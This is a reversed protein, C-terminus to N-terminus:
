NKNNQEIVEKVLHEITPVNKYGAYNWIKKNLIKDSTNITRNIKLKSNKFKLNIDKRSLYKKFITLLKYKNLQNRPTLHIMNPIKLNRKIIGSIVRGFAYTTVGNWDHNKFGFARSKLPLFKFWDLLSKHGSLEPGIISCRINFFNKANIEGLSKSKGYVDEADHTNFELYNGKKGDFVCDTAIQFVKTKTNKPILEHPFLSNIKIANKISDQNNENIFPKIVGICNVIYDYNSYNFKSSKNVDFKIFNVNKKIKLNKKLLSLKKQNKYSAFIRFNKLDQLSNLLQWGLMGTSGLLLIKKM